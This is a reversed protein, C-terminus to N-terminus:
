VEIVHWNSLSYGRAVLRDFQQQAYGRLKLPEFLELNTSDDENQQCRITFTKINGARNTMVYLIKKM